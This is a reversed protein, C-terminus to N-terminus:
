QPAVVLRGRLKKWRARGIGKVRMLERTSRFRRGQRYQMIKQATARGVGPLSMLEEMSARNLDV